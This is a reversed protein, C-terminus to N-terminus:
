MLSRTHFYKHYHNLITLLLGCRAQLFWVILAPLQTVCLSSLPLHPHAPPISPTPLSIPLHTNLEHPFHAFVETWVKELGKEFVNVSPATVDSAPLTNWCKVVRLSFVLGRRQRHSAGQLLKYPATTFTPVLKLPLKDM